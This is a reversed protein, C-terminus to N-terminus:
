PCVKKFGEVTERCSICYKLHTRIDPSIGGSEVFLVIQNASLCQETPGLPTEFPNKNGGPMKGLQEWLNLVGTPTETTVSIPVQKCEGEDKCHMHAYHDGDDMPWAPELNHPCVMQASAEVKSDSDFAKATTEIRRADGPYKGWLRRACELFAQRTGERRGDPIESEGMLGIIEFIRSQSILVQVNNVARLLDRTNNRLSKIAVIHAPNKAM